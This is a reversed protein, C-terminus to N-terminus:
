RHNLVIKKVVTAHGSVINDMEGTSGSSPAGWGIDVVGGVGRTKITTGKLQYEGSTNASMGRTVVKDIHDRANAAVQVQQEGAKQMKALLQGLDNLPTYSTVVYFTETGPRDDFWYWKTGEPIEYSVGGRVESALAIKQHPFLVTARGQSDYLLVYLSCDSNPQVRLKFRQGSTVTGGDPLGTEVSGTSVVFEYRLALPPFDGGVQRAEPRRVYWVLQGLEGADVTVPRTSVISQGTSVNIAKCSLIIERNAQLLRGVVLVEAGQLKDAGLPKSKESVALSLDIESLIGNLHGRDVLKVGKEVLRREIEESALVGLRMVGGDSDVLPLVAVVKGGPLKDALENSLTECARIVQEYPKRAPRTSPVPPPSIRAAKGDPVGGEPILLRECGIAGSITLISILIALARIIVKM